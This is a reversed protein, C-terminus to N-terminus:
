AVARLVDKAGSIPLLLFYFWVLLPINWVDAMWRFLPRNVICISEFTPGFSHVGEWGGDDHDDEEEEVAITPGM